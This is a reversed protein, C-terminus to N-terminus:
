GQRMSGSSSRKGLGDTIPTTLTVGSLKESAADVEVRVGGGGRRARHDGGPGRDHVDAALRRAGAGATDGGVLLQAPDDGYELLEPALHGDRDVGRLRLDGAAREREARLEDVVHRRQAAVRRERADDGVRAPVEAQHVHLAVRARHLDIRAVVVHDCVDRAEELLAEGEGDTLADALLADAEIGAEAEPLGDRV